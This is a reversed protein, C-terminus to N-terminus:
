TSPMMFPPEQSTDSLADMLDVFAAGPIHELLWLDRGSESFYGGGERHKLIVSCDYIRVAPDDLRQQLEDCSMIADNKM